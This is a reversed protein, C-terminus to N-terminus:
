IYESHAAGVWVSVGVCRQTWTWVVLLAVKGAYVHACSQVHVCVRFKVPANSDCIGKKPCRHSLEPSVTHTQQTLLNMFVWVHPVKKGATQGVGCRQITSDKMKRQAIMTQAM